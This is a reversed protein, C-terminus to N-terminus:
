HLESNERGNKLIRELDERVMDCIHAQGMSIGFMLDDAPKQKQTIGHLFKMKAILNEIEKEM